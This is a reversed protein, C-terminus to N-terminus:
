AIEWALKWKLQKRVMDKARQTWEFHDMVAFQMAAQNGDFDGPEVVSCRVDEVGDDREAPLSSSCAIYAGGATEWIEHVWSLPDRGKTTFEAQAIKRGTFVLKPGRTQRITTRIIEDTM